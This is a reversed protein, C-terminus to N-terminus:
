SKNTLRLIIYLCLIKFINIKYKTDFIIKNM